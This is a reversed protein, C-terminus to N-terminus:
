QGADLGQLVFQFLFIALGTFLPRQALALQGFLKGTLLPTVLDTQETEQDARTQQHDQGGGHNVGAPNGEHQHIQKDTNILM